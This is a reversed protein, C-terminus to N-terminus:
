LLGDGLETLALQQDRYETLAADLRRARAEPGLFVADYLEEIHRASEAPITPDVRCEQTGDSNIRTIATLSTLYHVREVAAGLQGAATADALDQVALRVRRSYGVPNESINQRLTAAGVAIRESVRSLPSTLAAVTENARQAREVIVEDDPFAQALQRYASAATHLGHVFYRNSREQANAVRAGPAIGPAANGQAEALVGRLSWPADFGTVMLRQVFRKASTPWGEAKIAKANRTLLQQLAPFNYVVVESGYPSDYDVAENSVRHAMEKIAQRTHTRPVAVQGLPKNPGVEVVAAMLAAENLYQEVEALAKQSAPSTPM